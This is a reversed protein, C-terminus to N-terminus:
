QAALIFVNELGLDGILEFLEGHEQARFIVTWGPRLKM